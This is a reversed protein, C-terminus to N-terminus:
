WGLTVRAEQAFKKTRNVTERFHKEFVETIMTPPGGEIIRRIRAAAKKSSMGTTRLADLSRVRSLMVYIILWKMDEDARKPMEFHAIMGPDTTAGQLTYM